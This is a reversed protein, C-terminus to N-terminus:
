FTVNRVGQYVCSNNSHIQGNQPIINRPKVTDWNKKKLHTMELNALPVKVSTTLRRKTHEVMIATVM